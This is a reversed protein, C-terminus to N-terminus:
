QHSQKKNLHKGGPVKMKTTLKSIENLDINGTMSVVLTEITREKGNIEIQENMVNDIGKVFVLLEKVYKPDHGEKVYFNVHMGSENVEILEELSRARLQVWKSIDTAIDQNDTAITKFSTMSKVMELYAQTDADGTDIGLSAIMQFMKPKINVYTVAAHDSYKEFIDNQSVGIFPLCMFVWVSVISRNKM